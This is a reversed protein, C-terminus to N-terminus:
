IEFEGSYMRDRWASLKEADAQWRVGIRTVPFGHPKEKCLRLCTGRGIGLFTCIEPLGLYDPEYM